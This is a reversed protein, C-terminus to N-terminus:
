TTNAVGIYMHHVEIIAWTKLKRKSTTFLLNVELMPMGEPM